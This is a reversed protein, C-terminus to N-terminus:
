IECFSIGDSASPLNQMPVVSPFKVAKEIRNDFCKHNLATSVIICDYCQISM